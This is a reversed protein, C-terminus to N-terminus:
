KVEKLCVVKLITKYIKTVRLALFFEHEWILEMNSSNQKCSEEISYVTKKFKVRFESDIRTVKKDLLFLINLCLKKTLWLFNQLILIHSLLSCWVFYLICPFLFCFTRGKEDKNFNIKPLYFFFHTLTTQCREIKIRWSEVKSVYSLYFQKPKWWWPQV